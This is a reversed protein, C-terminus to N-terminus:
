CNYVRANSLCFHFWSNLNNHNLNCLVAPLIGSPFVGTFLYWVSLWLFCSISKMVYHIDGVGMFLCDVNCGQSFKHCLHSNKYLVTLMSLLCCCLINRAFNRPWHNSDNRLKVKLLSPRYEAIFHHVTKRWWWLDGGLFLPCVATINKLPIWNCFCWWEWLLRHYM